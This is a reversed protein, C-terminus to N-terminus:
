RMTSPASATLNRMLILSSTSSGPTRSSSPQRLSAGLRIGFDPGVKLGVANSPVGSPSTATVSYEGTLELTVKIQVSKPRLDSIAGAPVDEASGAPDIVTIAMRPVFGQGVLTLTQPNASARLRDPQVGSIVPAGSQAMGLLGVICVSSLFRMSISQM